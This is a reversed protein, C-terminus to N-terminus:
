RNDVVINGQKVVMKIDKLLSLDDIPNGKVVIVDAVKGPEITGVKNIIGLAQAHKKTAIELIKINSLGLIEKAEKLRKWFDSIIVDNVGADSGVIINLGAQNMKRFISKYKETISSNQAGLTLCIYPNYQKLLKLHDSNFFVKENKLWTCHEITNVGSKISNIIGETSCSHGAVKLNFKGAENVVVKLDDLNYQLTSPESGSTMNGGTVCVKIFDVKGKNLKRVAKMLELKGDAELGLFHLHGGTTTIPMGSSLLRPGNIINSKIADRLSTTLFFRGGCDRITTLGANLAKMANNAARLLMMENSDFSIEKLPINSGSFCIHVHPDILGPLITSDDIKIIEEQNHHKAIENLTLINEILGKKILIGVKNQISFGDYLQDAYIIV